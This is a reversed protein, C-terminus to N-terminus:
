KNTNIYKLIKCYIYLFFFELSCIMFRDFFFLDIISLCLVKGMCISVIVYRPALARSYVLNYIDKLKLLDKILCAFSLYPRDAPILHNVM